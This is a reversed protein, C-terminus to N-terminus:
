LPFDPWPRAQWPLHSGASLSCRPMLFVGGPSGRGGTWAQWTPSPLGPQSAVSAVGPHPSPLASLAPVSSCGTHKVPVCAPPAPAKWVSAPLWMALRGRGPWCFLAQQGGRVLGAHELGLPVEPGKQGLGDCPVSGSIGPDTQGCFCCQALM